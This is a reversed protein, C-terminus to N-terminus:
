EFRYTLNVLATDRDGGGGLELTTEWGDGFTINAGIAPSFDEEQSLSVAFGVPVVGVGPGFDVNLTGSHDEDADIFYGGIWARNNNGWILGVRPQITTAEVSSNFGGDLDTDTFTATVSGFFRDSGGALVLGGGYVDGDYSIRLMMLDPPVPLQTGRFDVDTDGDLQGYLAFVNLFPLLWVDLKLSINQLDSETVIGSADSIPIPPFGPPLTVDLTDIELPQDMQFWDIGVGFAKPLDRDGAMDKGFLPDASTLMPWLGAACVIIKLTNM